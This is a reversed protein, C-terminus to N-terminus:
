KVQEFYNKVAVLDEPTTVKVNKYSGECLKVKIGFAEAAMADDTVELKKKKANIYSAILFDLRFIQPTQIAYLEDRKPTTEVFGNKCVKITDKVKVGPIAGINKRATRYVASIEGATICPRAGDHVAVYHYKGQAKKLGNVVSEARTKGGELVCDLKSISHKVCLEKITDVADKRTVVIIKSIDGCEEFARLTRLILPVGLIDTFIKDCGGMRRSEGAAVIVAVCKKKFLM